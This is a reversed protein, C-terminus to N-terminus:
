GPYRRPGMCDLVKKSTHSSGSGFRAVRVDSEKQTSVKSGTVLIYFDRYSVVVTSAVDSGDGTDVIERTVLDHGVQNNTVTSSIDAKHCAPLEDEELFLGVFSHDVDDFNCVSQM